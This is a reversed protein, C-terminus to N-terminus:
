RIPAAMDCGPTETNDLKIIKKGVRALRQVDYWAGDPAKGDKGVRPILLAQNCGSIYTCYGTCVGRFGTIKDRYEAGLTVSSRMAVEKQKKFLKCVVEIKAGLVEMEKFEQLDKANVEEQKQKNEFASELWHKGRAGKQRMIRATAAIEAAFSPYTTFKRTEPTSKFKQTM